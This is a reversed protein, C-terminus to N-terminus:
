LAAQEDAIRRYGAYLQANDLSVALQGAILKVVDLRETTFADRLLRNELVLLAQLTARSVIPVALLSCAVVGAFYADRAFRDDGAADAVVLPERTRQLYRLVSLPVAHEGGDSAPPLWDQREDSWLVLHVGTAGTMAGLVEAVRAHLREVSTESSLAQSAALIGLLDITGTTVTSRHHAVDGREAGGGATTADAHRRAPPYAWDLQDVKATAGWALYDDRAHALLDYGAHDVGHALFFRAAREAILARHWPRQRGAVERRAADFAIVAARFDGAAWAREAEVLRLLAVFNDPAGPVWGALWRALEDLEALLDDRADGDTARAADAVVLGRLLRVQAMPYFGNVVQILELAGASHEALRAADGFIAAAIARCLHAYFLATPDDAYRELPVAETAAGARESRLVGVLWEYSDLWRVTQENATRRLFTFGDDLEAVFSALSPACDVSYPVSLLYTYGGYALEGGAILGDRARHAADVGQEIPAFWGTNTAAMYRAQSTGPEYGRAEGLAIIRQLARYAGLYDDRQPGAHYAAHGAPGILLPSPGHEIWMRVAEMALWSIMARDAVFNAVPLLADVLRSIALLRPDSLEPRALDEAPDTSDLWRFFRDYKDDIGAAFRDAAPVAIGCERLSRLGLEIAEAFRTRHSLSRVQVATAEARQVATPSLEAVARYDEDAEDLRGLSFLAAHRGTRVALVVAADDDPDVLRLAAALLANVLTYDGILRAQDAAQRLLAVVRRREAPDDVEDVVPLYQEAAVAFREPAGALRRAIALQRARREQRGLGDLVVERVRDHRFRRAEDVGSDVVLLGEELAPALMREVVDAPEGTAAQLLTLEARGGLCAMAEVMQRSGPALAAVRAGLLETVESTQLRARAAGDDWHWGDATPTLVGDRRLADLLEVTDYPNGRTHPELAEVLGAARAPDAHLMDAVMAVLSPGPLNDLPIHRVGPQERWRSLPAALPHAADVDGDRDRYAGVLLLGAIPEGSLVGDILGLPARGAWQLDDVFVVVPRRPSAVARLVALASQAARAQATLPDGAAPPVGLLAAFEPVLATLLGANPGVAALIRERLPTLDHEPEALLVRGLARLAQHVADFELDRRHEDFKGAVFWGGRSAVVPRVEAALATKGVGPAGSMLVGRCRGTLSAEFAERVTAVEADRGVLRSPALLRLPVDREGIGLAADAAGAPAHRVAELDRVLGDASQYRSDPEKELLHMVIQSVTAPVAPNVQAPPVPM